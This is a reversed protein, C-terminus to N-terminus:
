DRPTALQLLRSAFAAHNKGADFREAFRLRAADRMPQGAEVVAEAAGAIEASSPNAAILRGCDDDVLERMAGVNTVVAPVGFSMAEMVSVAIGEQESANIFADVSHDRFYRLVERHSLAGAIRYQAPELVQSALREIAHREPGDGIHTWHVERDDGREALQAALKAVAEVILGVRKVPLLTSVSVLRICSDDSVECSAHPDDAGLRFVDFKEAHQPFRKALTDRADDSVALVADVSAMTAPQLPIIGGAHFYPYVEFSHARSVVKIEAHDRRMSALGLTRGGCWYTYFLSSELRIEGTKVGHKLWRRCRMAQEIWVITMGMAAPHILLDPRRVLQGMAWMVARPSCVLPALRGVISAEPQVVRLDLSVDAPMADQQDTVLTPLLVVKDFAHRLAALEAKLFTEGPLFPYSDTFLYLTLPESM